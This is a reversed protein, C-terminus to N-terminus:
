ALRSNKASKLFLHEYQKNGLQSTTLVFKQRRTFINMLSASGGFITGVFRFSIGESRLVNFLQFSWCSALALRNCDYLLLYCTQLLRNCDDSKGNRSPVLLAFVNQHQSSKCNTHLDGQLLKHTKVQTFAWKGFKQCFFWPKVNIKGSFSNNQRM